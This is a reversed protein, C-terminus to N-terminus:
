SNTKNYVPILSNLESIKDFDTLLSQIYDKFRQQALDLLETLGNTDNKLQKLNSVLSSLYSQGNAQSREIPVNEVLEKLRNYPMIDLARLIVGTMFPDEANDNYAQDHIGIYWDSITPAKVTEQNMNAQKEVLLQRAQAQIDVIDSSTNATQNTQIIDAATKTVNGYVADDPTLNKVKRSLLSGISLVIGEVLASSGFGMLGWYIATMTAQAALFGIGCTALGLLIPVAILVIKTRTSLSTNPPPTSNPGPGWNGGVGNIGSSSDM